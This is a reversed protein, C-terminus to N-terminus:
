GGPRYEALHLRGLPLQYHATRRHRRHHHRRGSGDPGAPRRSHPRHLPHRPFREDCQVVSYGLGLNGFKDQAISGMWRHVSDAPAYTGQQYLSYLGNVRRVEYWRMGAMGPMAEVSQSTVMLEYKGFNRYALRFTPRQRYSLIDLYQDPNTIGPQPICGRSPGCPFASDFEAVPIQQVLNLWAVPGKVGSNWKVYMEYINLADFTAGYPYDDDQTGFIPVPSHDLPKKNGDIDAPLLGDGLLELPVIDSDLFFQVVGVNAEGNVMKNKELAYVSIGYGGGDGFDRTTMIYSTNWVSYKPYDPFYYTGPVHTDEQTVFAYRYYPGTPDPTQSIAVCDYYFPTGRTTFQSLLWRDAFQDYVVIPDGSPDTCDQIPFGAWLAGTDVPGLLLNGQKDYVAFALNVMEVYHNPGVDGVPDPPNVRFGFLNFNDQNSIGEFNADSTLAALSDAAAMSKQLAADGAYGQDEFQILSRDPRFDIAEANPLGAALPAPRKAVDRLAPSIDFAVNSKYTPTVNIKPTSAAGAPFVAILLSLILILVILRPFATKTM